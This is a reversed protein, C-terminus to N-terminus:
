QARHRDPDAQDRSAPEGILYTLTAGRVRM